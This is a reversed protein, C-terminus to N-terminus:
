LELVRACVCMSASINHCVDIKVIEGKVLAGCSPRNERWGTEDLVGSM